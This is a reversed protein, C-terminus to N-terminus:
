ESVILDVEDIKGFASLHEEKSKKTWYALGVAGGVMAVTLLAM